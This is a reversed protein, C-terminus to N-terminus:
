SEERALESTQSIWWRRLGSIVLPIKCASSGRLGFRHYDGEKAEAGLNATATLIKCEFKDLL